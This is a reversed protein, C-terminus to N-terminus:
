STGSSIATSPTSLSSSNLAKTVGDSELTASGVSCIAISSFDVTDFRPHDLLLHAMAPVLFVAVPREAEVVDLWRGAFIGILMPTVVIWGLVGIQGLRRAVNPEGESKWVRHRAGRLRAASVLPDEDPTTM